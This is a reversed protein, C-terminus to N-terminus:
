INLTFRCNVVAGDLIGADSITVTDNISAPYECVVRSIVLDPSFAFAALAAENLDGIKQTPELTIEVMKGVIQQAARALRVPDMAIKSKVTAVSKVTIKM